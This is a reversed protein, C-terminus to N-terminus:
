RWSKHTSSSLSSTCMRVVRFLVHSRDYRGFLLVFLLTGRVGPALSSRSCGTWFYGAAREAKRTRTRPMWMWARGAKSSCNSWRASNDNRLVSGRRSWRASSDRRGATRWSRDPAGSNKKAMPATRGSRWAPLETPMVGDDDDDREDDGDTTSANTTWRSQGGSATRIRHYPRRRLTLRLLAALPMRRSASSHHGCRRSRRNGGRESRNPLRAGSKVRWTTWPGSTCVSGTGQRVCGM